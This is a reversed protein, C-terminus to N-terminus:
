EKRRLGTSDYGGRHWNPHMMHYKQPHHLWGIAHGIEHEIVRQKTAEKPYIFIKAKVINATVKETYIRTSALHAPPTKNTPLTIVIEGYRPEGCNLSHDIFASDFEYGLMEWYAIAKRARLLSVKTSECVRIAPPSDWEARQQPKGAAFSDMVSIKHITQTQPAQSAMCGIWLILLWGM